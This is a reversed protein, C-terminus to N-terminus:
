VFGKLRDIQPHSIKSLDVLFSDVTIMCDDGDAVRDVEVILGAYVKAALSKGNRRRAEALQPENSNM